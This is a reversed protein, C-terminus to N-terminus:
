PGYCTFALPPESGCRTRTECQYYEAGCYASRCAPSCMNGPCDVTRNVCVVTAQCVGDYRAVCLQSAGCRACPDPAMDIAADIAADM